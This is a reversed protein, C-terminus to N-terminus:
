RLSTFSFVTIRNRDSACYEGHLCRWVQNSAPGVFWSASLLLSQALFCDCVRKSVRPFGAALTTASRLAQQVRVSLTLQMHRRMFVRGSRGSFAASCLSPPCYSFPRPGHEFYHIIYLTSLIHWRTVNLGTARTHVPTFEVEHSPAMHRTTTLERRREIRPCVM